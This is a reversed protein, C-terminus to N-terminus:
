LQGRGSLGEWGSAQEYADAVQLLLADEFPRGALQLGIPLRDSTLGCPVSIAPGGYLNWPRTLRSLMSNKPETRGAVTM